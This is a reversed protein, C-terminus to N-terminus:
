PSRGAEAAAELAVLDGLGALLALIALAVLRGRIALQRANRDVAVEIDGVLMWEAEDDSLLIERGQRDLFVRRNLLKSVVPGGEPKAIVIAMLAFVGSVLAAILPWVWGRLSSDAAALAGAGALVVGAQTDQSGAAVTQISLQEM